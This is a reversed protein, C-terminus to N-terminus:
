ENNKLFLVRHEEDFYIDNFKLAREETAFMEFGLSSYLRKAPENTTVVTLYIQELGEIGKAEEITKELLSKGIGLGRGEPSVYMAVINARHKLKLPKEKVLTIVGDLKDKTFAGLTFSDNSRLQDRFLDIPYEKEEEYAAAFAEPNNMLAELRLIRHIEADLATLLRIIM